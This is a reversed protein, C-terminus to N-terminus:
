PNPLSDDAANYLPRKTAFWTCLAYFTQRKPVDLSLLYIRQNFSHRHLNSSKKPYFGLAISFGVPGHLTIEPITCMMDYYGRPFCLSGESIWM